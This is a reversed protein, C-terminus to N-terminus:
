RMRKVHNTAHHAPLLRRAPNGGGSQRWASSPPMIGDPIILREARRVPRIGTMEMGRMQRAACPGTDPYCKSCSSSPSHYGHNNPASRPHRINGVFAQGDVSARKLKPPITVSQSSLWPGLIIPTLRRLRCAPPAIVLAAYPSSRKFGIRSSSPSAKIVLIGSHNQSM